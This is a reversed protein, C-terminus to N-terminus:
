IWSRGAKENNPKVPLKQKAQKEMQKEVM